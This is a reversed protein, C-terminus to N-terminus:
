WGVWDTIKSNGLAQTYKLQGGCEDSSTYNFENTIKCACVICGYNGPWFRRALGYM